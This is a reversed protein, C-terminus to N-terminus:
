RGFNRLDVIQGRSSKKFIKKIDTAFSLFILILLGAVAGIVWGELILPKKEETKNEM